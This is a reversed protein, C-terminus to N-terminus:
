IVIEDYKSRLDEAIVRNILAERHERFFLVCASIQEIKSQGKPLYKEKHVGGEYMAISWLLSFSRDVKPDPLSGDSGPLYYDVFLAGYYREFSIWLVLDNSAYQITFESIQSYSMGMTEFYHCVTRIEDLYDSIYYGHPPSKRKSM